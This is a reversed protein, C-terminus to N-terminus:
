SIRERLTELLFYSCGLMIDCCDGYNNWTKLNMFVFFQYWFYNSSCGLSPWFVMKQASFLYYPGYNRKIFLPQLSASTFSSLWGNFPSVIRLIKSESFYRVPIWINKVFFLTDHIHHVPKNRGWNFVFSTM